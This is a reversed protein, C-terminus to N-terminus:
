RCNRGNTGLTVAWTVPPGSESPISGHSEEAVGSAVGVLAIGGFDVWTNNDARLFRSPVLFMTRAATGDVFVLPLTTAARHLGSVM